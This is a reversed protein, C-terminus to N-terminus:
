DILWPTIVECLVGMAGTHGVHQGICLLWTRIFCVDQEIMVLFACFMSLRANVMDQHTTAAFTMVNASAAGLM